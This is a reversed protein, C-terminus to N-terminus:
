CIMLESLEIIKRGKKKALEKYKSAGGYNRTVFTVVIDSNNIMWDNRKCIAFRKPASEVEEPYM